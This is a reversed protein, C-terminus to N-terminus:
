LSFNYCSRYIELKYFNAFIKYFNQQCSTKSFHLYSVNKYCKTSIKVFNGSIDFCCVERMKSFNILDLFVKTLDRLLFFIRPLVSFYQFNKYVNKVLQVVKYVKLITSNFFFLLHSTKSKYSRYIRPSPRDETILTATTRPSRKAYYHTLYQETFCNPM